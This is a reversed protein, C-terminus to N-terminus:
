RLLLWSQVSSLRRMHDRTTAFACHAENWARASGLGRRGGVQLAASGPFSRKGETSAGKLALPNQSTIIAYDSAAMQGAQQAGGPRHQGTHSNASRTWIVRPTSQFCPPFGQNERGRRASQQAMGEM